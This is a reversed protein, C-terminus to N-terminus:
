RPAAARRQPAAGEAVRRVRSALTSRLALGLRLILRLPLYRLGPYRRSVYIWASRHHQAAMRSPERRTTHGGTHVVAASPVYVNQLGAQGLREGLDLDEFYMFYAPDFGHVAEFASRRLLLCSGSLWGAPRESPECRERRYSATWPNSPWWWGFVAHGIGNRLTPIARASPYIEGTPTRILPGFSGAGPWRRTAGVLVDLSGPDWIVDPNAVLVLEAASAAVGTNAGPGYGINSGTRIMRVEPRTMAEHVSTDTSGNDVLVVEYPQTTAGDLSDLFAALSKGSSYTVTVVSVVPRTM